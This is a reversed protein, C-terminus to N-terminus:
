LARKSLLCCYSKYLDIDTSSKLDFSTNEPVMKNGRRDLSGESRIRSKLKYSFTVGLDFIEVSKYFCAIKMSIQSKLLM